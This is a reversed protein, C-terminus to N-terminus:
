IITWNVMRLETELNKFIVGILIQERLLFFIYTGCIDTRIRFALDVWFVCLKLIRDVVSFVGTAFIVEHRIYRRRAWLETLLDM